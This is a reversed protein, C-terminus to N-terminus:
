DRDGAEFLTCVRVLLRDAQPLEAAQGSWLSLPQMESEPALPELERIYSTLIIVLVEAQEKIM